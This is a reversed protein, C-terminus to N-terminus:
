GHASRGIMTINRRANGLRKRAKKRDQIANHAALCHPCESIIEMKEDDDLWVRKMGCGGGDREVDEFAYAMKLHTEHDHSAHSNEKNWENFCGELSEGIMKTLRKVENKAAVMEICAALAKEEKQM